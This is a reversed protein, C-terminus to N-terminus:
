SSHTDSITKKTCLKWHFPSGNLRFFFLDRYNDRYMRPRNTINTEMCKRIESITEAPNAINIEICNRSESIAGVFNLIKARICICNESITGDTNANITLVCIMVFNNFKWIFLM